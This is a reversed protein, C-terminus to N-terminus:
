KFDEQNLYKMEVGYFARLLRGKPTSIQSQSCRWMVCADLWERSRVRSRAKFEAYTERGYRFRCERKKVPCRVTGAYINISM